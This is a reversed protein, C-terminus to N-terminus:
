MRQGASVAEGSAGTTRTMRSVQVDEPCRGLVFGERGAFEVFCDGNSCGSLLSVLTVLAITQFMLRFSTVM